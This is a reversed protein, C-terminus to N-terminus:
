WLSMLVCLIVLSFNFSPIASPRGEKLGNEPFRQARQPEATLDKGWAAFM